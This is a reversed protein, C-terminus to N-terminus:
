EELIKENEVLKLNNDNAKQELENINMKEEDIFKKNYIKTIM